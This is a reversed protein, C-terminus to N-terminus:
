GLKKDLLAEITEHDVIRNRMVNGRGILPFVPPFKFQKGKKKEMSHRLASLTQGRLVEAKEGTIKEVDRELSELTINSSRNPNMSLSFSLQHKKLGRLLGHM